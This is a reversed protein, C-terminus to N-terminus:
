DLPFASPTWLCTFYAWSFHCWIYSPGGYLSPFTYTKWFATELLRLASSWFLSLLMNQTIHEVSPLLCDRQCESRPETSEQQRIMAVLKASRSDEM